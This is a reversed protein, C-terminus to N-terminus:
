RFLLGRRRVGSIFLRVTRRKRADYFLDSAGCEEFICWVFACCWPFRDGSVHEGYYRDNFIVENTGNDYTYLYSLAKDIITNATM